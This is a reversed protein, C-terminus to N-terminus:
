DAELDGKATTVTGVLDDIGKRGSTFGTRRANIEGQVANHIKRFAPFTSRYDQLKKVEGDIFNKHDTM